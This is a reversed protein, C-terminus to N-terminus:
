KKEILKILSNCLRESAHGDPKYTYERFFEDAENNLAPNSSIIKQIVDVITSPDKCELALKKEVYTDKEDDYINCIIIPKKFILAYSIASTFSSFSIVVDADLLFDLVDGKQYIPISPDIAHIISEYQSFQAISPHIKITLFIKNKHKSINLIIQKILNEQQNKTWIGHEWLPAPVFLVNIKNDTKSTQKREQMKKIVADFMPNGTVVLKTRDYGAATLPEIIDEGELWHLSNEFMSFYQEKTQKSYIKLMTFFNKLLQINSTKLSKQTKLLFLYKYLFFRGRSMIKKNTETPVNSEFFRTFYSINLKLRSIHLKPVSFFFSVVPINLYKGALSLAYDIIPYGSEAFIVDPKAIKLVEVANEYDHIDLITNSQDAKIPLNLKEPMYILWIMHVDAKTKLVPLISEFFLTMMSKTDPLTHLSTLIRLSTM